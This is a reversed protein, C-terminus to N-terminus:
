ERPRSPTRWMYGTFSTQEARRPTPTVDLLSAFRKNNKLPVPLLTRLSYATHQGIKNKYFLLFNFAYTTSVRWLVGLCHYAPCSTTALLRWM